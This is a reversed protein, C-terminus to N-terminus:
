HPSRATPMPPTHSSSLVRVATTAAVLGVLGFGAMLAAVNVAAVLISTL